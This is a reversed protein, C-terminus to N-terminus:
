AAERANLAALRNTVIVDVLRELKGWDEPLLLAPSQGTALRTKRGIFEVVASIPYRVEGCFKTHTLEGRRNMDRLTRESLGLVRAVEAPKLLPELNLQTAPANM